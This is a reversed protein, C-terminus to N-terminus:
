VPRADYAISVTPPNFVTVEISVDEPDPFYYGNAKVGDPKYYGGLAVASDDVIIGFLWADRWLHQGTTFGCVSETQQPTLLTDFISMVM